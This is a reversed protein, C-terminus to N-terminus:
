SWRREFRRGLSASFSKTAVPEVPRLVGGTQPLAARIKSELATAAFPKLLLADAGAQRVAVAEAPSLRAATMIFPCNYLNLDSRISRLMELGCMPAMKLDAIVLRRGGQRLVDIGTTGDAALEINQFGLSELIDLVFTVASAQDDAILIPTSREPIM